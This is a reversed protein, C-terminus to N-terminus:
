LSEKHLVAFRLLANAGEIGFKRCINTRHNEVTRYHISLEAGIEKSSQGAAILKLVQSETVTLQSVLSDVTTSRPSRRRGLLTTAIAPSVYLRGAAVAGIGEVIEETASDKLLYGKAGLDMAVRFLDEDTHMTLFIIKTSLHLENIKRAVALGDLKPMEIDLVAIDPVLKQIMALAIEGDEAEGIVTFNINEEISQRVGRRVIPHDDAILIQLQSSM